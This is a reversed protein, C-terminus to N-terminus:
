FRPRRKRFNSRERPRNRWDRSGGSDRDRSDRGGFSRKRDGGGFEGARGGIRRDRGGGPRSDDRTRRGRRRRENMGRFGGRRTPRRAFPRRETQVLQIETFPPVPENKIYMDEINLINQFDEYDMNSIINIVKGEEKARATRGIRHIYEKSEHPIDYNYVHTVGQIDLGRAAIDTCILVNTENSHFQEMVRSRKDQSFGGHLALANVGQSELNRALRDVNRRTNCFVMVLRSKENKLLHTLLSFKFKSNIDYYAQTLKKPDVYPEASVEVPNNMYRQSLRIVEESMTASFLLTQRKKPCHNIIKEVDQRFGMDLMRDAEDLVLIKLQSLDMTHRAIHDLIRGPTGIIIEARELSRIQPRISVGGYVSFIKLPNFQSFKKVSQSVQEALERTPTLILAQLGFDKQTEKLIVSSFALTKGSGTSAQAIVERGQIVFPISKEQIETPHEFGEHEIAKLLPHPLGLERFTISPKDSNEDQENNITKSHKM